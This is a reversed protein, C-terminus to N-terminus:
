RWCPQEGIPARHSSFRPVRGPYGQRSPRPTLDGCSHKEIGQCQIKGQGEFHAALVRGAVPQAFTLHGDPLTFTAADRQWDVNETIAWQESEQFARLQAYVKLLDESPATPLDAARAGDYLTICLLLMWLRTRM